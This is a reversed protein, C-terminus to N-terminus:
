RFLIIKRFIYIDLVNIRIVSRQKYQKKFFEDELEFARAESIIVKYKCNKCHQSHQLNILLDRNENNKKVKVISNDTIFTLSSSKKNYYDSKRKPSKSHERHKHRSRSRSSSITDDSSYRSRHSNHHRDGSHRGM